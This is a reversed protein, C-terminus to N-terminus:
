KEKHWLFLLSPMKTRKLSISAEPLYWNLGPPYFLISTVNKGEAGHTVELCSTLCYCMQTLQHFTKYKNVLCNIVPSIRIFEVLGLSPPFYIPCAYCYFHHRSPDRPQERYGRHFSPWWRPPRHDHTSKILFTILGMRNGGAAPSSSM